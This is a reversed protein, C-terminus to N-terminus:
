LQQYKDAYYGLGLAGLRFVFGDKAGSFEEYPFFELSKDNPDFYRKVAVPPLLDSEDPVKIEGHAQATWDSARATSDKNFNSDCASVFCIGGETSDNENTGKAFVTPHDAGKPIIHTLRDSLIVEDYEVGTEYDKTNIDNM